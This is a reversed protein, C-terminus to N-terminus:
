TMKRLLSDSELESNLRDTTSHIPRKSIFPHNRIYNLKVLTRNKTLWVLFGGRLWFDVIPPPSNRPDFALFLDEGSIPVTKTGSNEQLGFLLFMNQM